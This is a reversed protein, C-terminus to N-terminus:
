VPRPVSSGAPEKGHVAEFEVQVAEFRRQAQAETIKGAKKDRMIEAVKEDLEAAEPRAAAAAQLQTPISHEGYHDRMANIMRIGAASTCTLRYENEMEKDFLGNAVLADGFNATADIMSQAKPGLKRLEEKQDIPDPLAAGSQEVYWAITDNFDQNSMRREHAFDRFASVIPDESGEEDSLFIRDATPKLDDPLELRYDEPNEVASAKKTNDETRLARIEEQQDKWSKVLGDLRLEGTKPDHFQEPLYEPREELRLGPVQSAEAEAAPAKDLAASESTDKEAPTAHDLLSATKAGGDDSTAEAEAESAGAGSVADKDFFMRTSM